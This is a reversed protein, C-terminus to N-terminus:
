LYIIYLSIRYGNWAFFFSLEESSFLYEVINNHESAVTM